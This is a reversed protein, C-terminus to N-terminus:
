CVKRIFIISRLIETQGGQCWLLCTEPSLAPNLTEVSMFEIKNEDNLVVHYYLIGDSYNVKYVLRRRGNDSYDM